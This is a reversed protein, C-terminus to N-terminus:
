PIVAADGVQERPAVEEPEAGRGRDDGGDGDVAVDGLRRRGDIRREVDATPKEERTGENREEDAERLSLM